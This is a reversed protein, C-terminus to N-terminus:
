RMEWATFFTQTQAEDPIVEVIRRGAGDPWEDNANQTKFYDWGWMKAWGSFELEHQNEFLPTNFMRSFIKGGGNNIVVINLDLVSMSRTAWLGALDYLASLDGIVAWNPRDERAMGLFTSVLGDIGNVGRNGEVHHGGRACCDWERIPLSNGVFVFSGVPIKESLRRVWAPESLPFEALLEDRKEARRRDTARETSSWPEFECRALELSALAHVERERPLGCWPQNSFHWVPLSLTELDRWFRLTPVGGIRIVSDLRMDQVTELGTVEWEGLRGRLQSTAEAYVPRRWKQVIPLVLDADHSSLGSVIVLPTRGSIAVSRGSASQVARAFPAAELAWPGIEEDLLPESFAVNLHVPRRGSVTLSPVEGEVDYCKEVYAGFIGPQVITQPAGTGRYSRPRDASVVILPVGQYDAEIVAPLLEAVATGSTTCVVVPRGSVRARGLAFFGASREEFFGHVQWGLASDLLKVFPANRAGACVVAEAVGMAALRQLVERALGVQTM